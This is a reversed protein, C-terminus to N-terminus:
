SIGSSPSVLPLLTDDAPYLRLSEWLPKMDRERFDKSYMHYLAEVMERVERGSVFSEEEFGVRRIMLMLPLPRVESSLDIEEPARFDPQLYNIGTIRLYGAHEYAKVRVLSGANDSHPYEMEGLLTIPSNLPKQQEALCHRATQIPLARLWGALGSRRWEPSILNHSLHVIARNQGKPVIATQDRVACFEGDSTVLMLDYRLAYGQQVLGKPWCLRKALVAPQEIEGAAGFESWLAGFAMDFEPEEASDVRHLTVDRWDRELSKTDGPALDGPIMWSQLM